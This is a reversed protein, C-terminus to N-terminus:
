IRDRIWKTLFYERRYLFDDRMMSYVDLLSHFVMGIFIFFFPAFFIGIIAVLAHFEVTHFLHFDGSRRIGKTREKHARKGEEEHYDFACMLDFKGTKKVANVYHDFDILFSALFVLVLNVWGVDPAVLFIIGTFIAGLFIHWRPLM